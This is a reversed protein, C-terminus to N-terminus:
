VSLASVHQTDRLVRECAPDAAGAQALALPSLRESPYVFRTKHRIFVIV